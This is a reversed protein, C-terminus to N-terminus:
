HHARRHSTGFPHLINHHTEILSIPVERVPSDPRPVPLPVPPQSTAAAANPAIVQILAALAPGNTTPLPAPPAPPEPAPVPLRPVFAVAAALKTAAPESAEMVAHTVTAGLSLFVPYAVTRMPNALGLPVLIVAYSLCGASVVALGRLAGMAGGVFSNFLRGLDIWRTDFGFRHSVGAALRWAALGGALAALPSWTPGLSATVPLCGVVWAAAIGAACGLCSALEVPAGRILGLLLLLVPVSVLATDLLGFGPPM